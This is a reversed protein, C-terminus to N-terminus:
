AYIARRVADVNARRMVAFAQPKSRNVGKQWLRKGRHGPHQVVRRYGGDPLKLAGGKYAGAAGFLENYIAQRNARRAGKGKVRANKRYIAHPRADNNIIQWPGAARVLATSHTPHLRVEYRVSLAAGNKGVNRLRRPSISEIDRKMLQAARLVSTPSASALSVGARTMKRAFQAAVTSPM